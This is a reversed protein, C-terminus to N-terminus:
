LLLGVLIGVGVGCCFILLLLGLSVSTVESIRTGDPVHFHEGELGRTKVFGRLFKIAFLKDIAKM